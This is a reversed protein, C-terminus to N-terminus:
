VRPLGFLKIVYAKLQNETMKDITEVATLKDGLAANKELENKLENKATGPGVIAIEDADNLHGLLDQCFEHMQNQRRENHRNQNAITVHENTNIGSHHHPEVQSGFPTVSVVNNVDAKVLFAHAHDIWIAYLNKMPSLPIFSSSRAFCLM